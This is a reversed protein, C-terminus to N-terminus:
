VENNHTIDEHVIKCPTIIQIYFNRSRFISQGHKTAKLWTQAFNAFSRIISSRQCNRQKIYIMATNEDIYALGNEFKWIKLDLYQRIATVVIIYNIICALPQLM